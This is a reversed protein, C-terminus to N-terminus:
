RPRGIKIVKETMMERWHTIWGVSRTVAFIVNFMNRPIQMTKLIFGSFYDINPFLSRSTFYPDALAIEELKLAIEFIEDRIGLRTHLDICMKKLIKARPDYCKYVRHGFGMLRTEKNKVSEMFKEINKVSGINEFMTLCEENAGGHAPGWLSAIGAAIAAFPNALSSGAIRVATTSPGQDNDAHLIFVKDMIEVFLDPVKFDPDMPDSFLM